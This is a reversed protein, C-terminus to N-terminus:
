KAALVTMDEGGGTANTDFDMDNVYPEDMLDYRATRRGRLAGLVVILATAVTALSATVYRRRKLAPDATNIGWTFFFVSTATLLLALLLFWVSM